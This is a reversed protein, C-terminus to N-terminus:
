DKSFNKSLHKSSDPPKYMVCFIFPKSFPPSIEIWIGEIEDEELDERITFAIGSKIYMGVGGGVADKRTKKIFEYGPINFDTASESRVFLETLSFIDINQSSVLINRIEDYKGHLGRINQHFFKLGKNNCLNKIEQLTNPGPCPHIDGSMLLLM